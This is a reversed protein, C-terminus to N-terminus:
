GLDIRVANQTAQSVESFGKKAAPQNAPSTSAFYRLGVVPSKLLNISVSLMLSINLIGSNRTSKTAARAFRPLTTPVNKPM